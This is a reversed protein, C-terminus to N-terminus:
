IDKRMRVMVARGGLSEWFARGEENHAAVYWEMSRVGRSRFWAGLNNVLSRGIGYGRYAEEVFIDALFGSTEQQFMDPVLDIIMGLTFGVLTGDYEAVLVESYADNIQDRVRRAYTVAGDTAATPLAQDLTHHYTVLKEWMRSVADADDAKAPRIVVDDLHTRPSDAM